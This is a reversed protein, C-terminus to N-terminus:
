PLSLLIKVDLVKDITEELYKNKKAGSSCMLLTFVSRKYNLSKSLVRKKKEINEKETKELTYEKNHHKLELVYVGAGTVDILLDIEASEENPDKSIYKFKSVSYNAKALGVQDIIRDIHNWCLYEFSFGSWTNYSAGELVSQWNAIRKTKSTELWTLYFLSFFDKLRYRQSAKTSTGFPQYKEIFDSQELNSLYITFHSGSQIKAKERIEKNTLGQRSKSLVRVIRMHEDASNFLSYYLEEFEDKLVGNENLFLHNVIAPLSTGRKIQNLYAATGGLIMYLSILDETSLNINKSELYEKTEALTFPKLHIRRTARRHWGGKGKLIKSVIWSSASSCVFIKINPQNSAWSNWFHELANLFGSRRSDLWAAEDFFLTIPKKSKSTKQQITIALKLSEFAETWNKPKDIKQGSYFAEALVDQFHKLQLHQKADKQGTIEFYTGDESGRGNRILYTKGIRRRGWVATLEPEKSRLIEKILELEQRRGIVKM